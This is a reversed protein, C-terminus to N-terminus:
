SAMTITFYPRSENFGTQRYDLPFFMLCLVRRFLTDAFHLIHLVSFNKTGYMKTRVVLMFLEFWEGDSLDEVRTFKLFYSVMENNGCSAAKQLATENNKDRVRVVDTNKKVVADAIEVAGSLAAYSCATYGHGDLLVVDDPSMREVLKQVFEEHKMAAAVHLARDGERTVHDSALSPDRSLLVEAALWDGELAARYMCEGNGTINNGGSIIM